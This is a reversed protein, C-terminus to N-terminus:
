SRRTKKWGARTPSRARGRQRARGTRPRAPRATPMQPPRSQSARAVTRPRRSRPTRAQPSHPPHLPASSPSPPATPSPCHPTARAPLNTPATAPDRDPAHLPARLQGTRMVKDGCFPARLRGVRDQPGHQCQVAVPSPELIAPDKALRHAEVVRELLHPLRLVPHSWGAGPISAQLGDNQGGEERDKGLMGAHRARRGMRFSPLQKCRQGRACLVGDRERDEDDDRIAGSEM